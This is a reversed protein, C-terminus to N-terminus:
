CCREQMSLAEVHDKAHTLSITVCGAVAVQLSMYAEEVKEGTFTLTRVLSRRGSFLMTTTIRPCFRWTEKIVIGRRQPLRLPVAEPFNEPM